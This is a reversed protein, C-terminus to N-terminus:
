RDRYGISQLLELGRKLQRAYIPNTRAISNIKNLLTGGSKGLGHIEILAQEVARADSRSLKDMLKEIQLGKKRLQAAARRALNNTIGVYNVEGSTVSRYVTNEADGAVPGSAAPAGQRVDVGHKIIAAAEDDTKAAAAQSMLIKRQESSLEELKRATPKSIKIQRTGLKIIIAGIPLHGLLPLVSLLQQWRPGNDAFDGIAVVLDGAPSISAVSGAYLEALVSALRAAEATARRQWARFEQYDGKQAFRYKKYFAGISDAFWGGNVEAIIAQATRGATFNQDVYIFPQDNAELRSYYGFQWFGAARSRVQGNVSNARWWAAVKPDLIELAQQVKSKFSATTDPGPGAVEVGDVFVSRPAAPANGADDPKGVESVFRIISGGPPLKQRGWLARAEATRPQEVVNWKHWDAVNSRASQKRMWARYRASDIVWKDLPPRHQPLIKYGKPVQEDLYRDSRDRWDPPLGGQLLNEDVWEYLPRLFEWIDAECRRDGDRRAERLLRAVMEVSVITVYPKPWM